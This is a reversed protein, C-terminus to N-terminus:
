SSILRVFTDIFLYFHSSYLSCLLFFFNTFMLLSFSLRNVYSFEGFHIPIGGCAEVPRLIAEVTWLRCCTCHSTRPCTWEVRM